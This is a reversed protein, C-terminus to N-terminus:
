LPKATFFHWGSDCSGTHNESVHGLIDLGGGPVNCTKNGEPWFIFHPQVIESNPVQLQEGRQSGLPSM